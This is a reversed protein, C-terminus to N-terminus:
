VENNAKERKYAEWERRDKGKVNKKATWEDDHDQETIKNIGKWAILYQNKDEAIIGYMKWSKAEDSESLGDSSSFEGRMAEEELLAKIRRKIQRLAWTCFRQDKRRQEDLKRRKPLGALGRKNLLFEKEAERRAARRIHIRYSRYTKVFSESESESAVTNDNGMDEVDEVGDSATQDNPQILEENREDDVEDSSNGEDRADDDDLEM